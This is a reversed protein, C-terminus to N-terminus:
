RLIQWKLKQEEILVCEKDFEEDTIYWADKLAYAQINKIGSTQLLIQNIISQKIEETITGVSKLPVITFTNFKDDGGGAVFCNHEKVIRFITDVTNSLTEPSCSLNLQVLVTFGEQKFEGRHYKKRLRKKM